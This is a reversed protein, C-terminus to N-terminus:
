SRQKYRPHRLSNIRCKYRSRRKTLNSQLQLPMLRLHSPAILGKNNSWQRLDKSNVVEEVKGLKLLLLQLKASSSSWQSSQALVRNLTTILAKRLLKISVLNWKKWQLFPQLCILAKRTPTIRINLYLMKPTAKSHRLLKLEHKLLM